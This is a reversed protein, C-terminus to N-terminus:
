MCTKWILLDLNIPFNTALSSLIIQWSCTRKVPQDQPKIFLLPAAPTLSIKVRRQVPWLYWRCEHSSKDLVIYGASTSSNQSLVATFALCDDYLYFGSFSTLQASCQSCHNLSAPERTQRTPSLDMWLRLVMWCLVHPLGNNQPKLPTHSTHPWASYMYVTRLARSSDM